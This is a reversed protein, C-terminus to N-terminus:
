IILIFLKIFLVGPGERTLLIGCLQIKGFLHSTNAIWQVIEQSPASKYETAFDRVEEEIRFLYISQYITLYILLYILYINYLIHISLYISIDYSYTCKFISSICVFVLNFVLMSLFFLYLSLYILYM